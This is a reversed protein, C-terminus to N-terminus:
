KIFPVGARSQPKVQTICGTLEGSDSSCGVVDNILVRGIGECKLGAIDFLKVSTKNARIPAMNLALRKAIVGGQDFIVLDLKFSTYAQVAPNTLVLYARCAGKVPELKNLEINIPEASQSLSAVCVLLVFTVGKCFKM